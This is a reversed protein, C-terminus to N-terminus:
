NKSEFLLPLKKLSFSSVMLLQIDKAELSRAKSFLSLSSHDHITLVFSEGCMCTDDSVPYGEKDDICSCCTKAM